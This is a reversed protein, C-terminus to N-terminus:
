TTFKYMTSLAIAIPIIPLETFSKNQLFKVIPLGNFECYAKCKCQNFQIYNESVPLEPEPFSDYIDVLAVPTQYNKEIYSSIIFLRINLHYNYNM